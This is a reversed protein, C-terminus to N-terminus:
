ASRLLSSFSPLRSSQPSCPWKTNQSHFLAQASFNPCHLKRSCVQSWKYREMDWPRVFTVNLEHSIVAESSSIKSNLSLRSSQNQQKRSRGENQNAITTTKTAYSKSINETRTIVSLIKYSVGINNAIMSVQLWHRWHQKALIPNSFPSHYDTKNTLGQPIVAPKIVNKINSWCTNFYHWM